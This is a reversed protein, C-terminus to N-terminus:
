VTLENEERMEVAMAMFWSIAIIILGNVMLDGGHFQVVMGNVMFGSPAPGSIMTANTKVGRLSLLGPVFVWLFKATGWLVCAVGWQQIQRGSDGSFIEGRSYNGLLRHLHYVCLFMAGWRLTFYTGLVLRGYISLSHVLFTYDDVGISLMGFDPYHGGWNTMLALLMLATILVPPVFFVNCITRLIGSIRKIKRLRAENEPRM